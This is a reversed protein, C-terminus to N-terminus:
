DASATVDGVIDDDFLLDCTPRMPGNINVSLPLQITIRGDADWDSLNVFRVGCPQRDRSRTLEPQMRRSELFKPLRMACRAVAARPFPYIITASAFVISVRLTLVMRVSQM